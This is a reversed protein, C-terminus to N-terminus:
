NKSKVEINLEYDGMAMSNIDMVYEATIHGGSENLSADIRKATSGVTLGGYPTGYLCYNKRNTEILLESSVTGSRMMELRKGASVSVTTVSGEYGTADTENYVIECGDETLRYRGETIVETCDEKGDTRQICKIFIIVDKM